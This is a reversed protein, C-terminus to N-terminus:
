DIYRGGGILGMDPMNMLSIQFKKDPVATRCLHDLIDPIKKDPM